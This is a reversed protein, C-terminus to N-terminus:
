CHFTVDATNKWYWAAGTVTCWSFGCSPYTSAEILKHADTALWRDTGARDSSAGSDHDCAEIEGFCVLNLAPITEVQKAIVDMRM